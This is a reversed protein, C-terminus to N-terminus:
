FPKDDSVPVPEKLWRNIFDVLEEAESRTLVYYKPEEGDSVAIEIDGTNTRHTATLTNSPEYKFQFKISVIM